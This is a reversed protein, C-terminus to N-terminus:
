AAAGEAAKPMKSMLFKIRGAMGEEDLETVDECNEEWKELVKPDVKVIELLARYQKVQEESALKVAVAGAEMIERGFKDAFAAYSWDFVQADPFQV